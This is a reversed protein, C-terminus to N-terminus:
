DSHCENHYSCIFHSSNGVSHVPSQNKLWERVTISFFVHVVAFWAAIMFAGSRALYKALMFGGSRAFYEALMFGGSRAFYEALM